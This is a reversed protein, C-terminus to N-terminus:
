DINENKVHDLLVNRNRIAFNKFSHLGYNHMFVDDFINKNCDIKICANDLYYTNEKKYIDVSLKEFALKKNIVNSLIETIEILSLCDNFSEYEKNLCIKDKFSM